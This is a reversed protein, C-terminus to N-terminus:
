WGARLGVGLRRGGDGNTVGAHLDLWTGPRVALSAGATGLWGDDGDALNRRLGARLVATKTVQVEAGGALLKSPELDMALTLGAKPIVAIGVRSQRGVAVVAGGPTEFEPQRLNRITGALRVVGLNYMASVDLDFAGTSRTPLARARDLEAETDTGEALGTGARARVYRLTTGVVFEDTLSQLLSVAYHRAELRTTPAGAGGSITIEDLDLISVAVPWTGLSVFRASRDVPPTTWNGNRDGVRFQVWEITAGAPQGSALGAPNWHPATADDAVAVFAGGMGLARAGILEFGQARAPGPVLILAAALAWGAARVRRRVPQTM